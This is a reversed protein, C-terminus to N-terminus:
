DRSLLDDVEAVFRDLLEGEIVFPSLSIKALKQKLDLDCNSWYEYHTNKVAIKWYKDDPVISRVFVAWENKDGEYGEEHKHWELAKVTDSAIKAIRPSHVIEDNSKNPHFKMYMIMKHLALLQYYDSIELRPSIEDGQGMKDQHLETSRKWTLLRPIGTDVPKLIWDNDHLLAQSTYFETTTNVILIIRLIEYSTAILFEELEKYAIEKIGINHTVYGLYLFKRTARWAIKDRETAEANNWIWIYSSNDVKSENVMRNLKVKNYKITSEKTYLYFVARKHRVAKRHRM